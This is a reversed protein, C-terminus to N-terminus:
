QLHRLASGAGRRGHRDNQRRRLAHRDAGENEALLLGTPVEPGEQSCSVLSFLAFIALAFCVFRKKM